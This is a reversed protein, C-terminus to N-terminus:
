AYSEIVCGKKSLWTKPISLKPSPGRSCRLVESFPLFGWLCWPTAWDSRPTGSGAFLRPVSRGPQPHCEPGSPALGERSTGRCTIEYPRDITVCNFGCCTVRWNALRGGGATWQPWFEAEGRWVAESWLVGSSPGCTGRSGNSCSSGVALCPRKLRRLWSLSLRTTPWTSVASATKM